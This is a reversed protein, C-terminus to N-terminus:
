MLQKWCIDHNHHNLMRLNFSFFFTATTTHTSKGLGKYQMMGTQCSHNTHTSRNNWCFWPGLFSITKHWSYRPDCERFSLFPLQVKSFLKSSSKEQISIFPLSNPFRMLMDQTDRELVYQLIIGKPNLMFASCCPQFPSRRLQRTRSQKATDIERM